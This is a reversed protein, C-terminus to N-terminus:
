RQQQGSERRLRDEMAAVQEDETQLDGGFKQALAARRQEREAESFQHPDFTQPPPEPARQQDQQRHAPGGGLLSELLSSLTELAAGMVRGVGDAARAAAAGGTMATHTQGATEAREVRRATRQTTEAKAAKMAPIKADYARLGAEFDASYDRGTRQQHRDKMQEYAQRTQREQRTWEADQAAWDHAAIERGAKM